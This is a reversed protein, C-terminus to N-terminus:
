AFIRNRRHPGCELKTNGKQDDALNFPHRHHDLFAKFEDCTMYIGHPFAATPLLGVRQHEDFV